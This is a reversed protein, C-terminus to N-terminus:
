VKYKEQPLVRLGMKKRFGDFYGNMLYQAQIVGYDFGYKFGLIIKIITKLLQKLFLFYDNNYRLIYAITRVSYYQRWLHNVNKKLGRIKNKGLKNYHLRLREVEQGSVLISLGIKKIRLCFELDEFGFFLTPDPLVGAEYVRRNVIPFQNGAIMDVELKGKLQADPIRSITCTKYNYLVGSAGIMGINESHTLNDVIHFITEIQNPSSPADDDDVWLVWEWGEEFLKKLGWYAGGAPGSNSGVPFHAVLSDSYANKVQRATEEIDNDVILIKKPPMTQSFLLDITKKLIEPRKYTIIFAAYNM